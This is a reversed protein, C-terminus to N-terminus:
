ANSFDVGYNGLLIQRSNTLVDIWTGVRMIGSINVECGDAVEIVGGTSVDKKIVKKSSKLRVEYSRENSLEDGSGNSLGLRYKKFRYSKSIAGDAWTSLDGDGVTQFKDRIKKSFEKLDEALGNSHIDLLQRLTTSSNADKNNNFYLHLRGIVPNEYIDAAIVDKEQALTYYVGLWGKILEQNRDGPDIGKGDRNELASRSEKMWAKLETKLVGTVWTDTGDGKDRPRERQVFRDHAHSMEHTLSSIAESLVAAKTGRDIYDKIARMYNASLTITFTSFNFSGGSGGENIAIFHGINRLATWLSQTTGGFKSVLEADSVDQMWSGAQDFKGQVIENSRFSKPKSRSNDRQLLSESRNDVFGFGQKVNSKKQGVSNAVAKSKNEKPKEKQAYM